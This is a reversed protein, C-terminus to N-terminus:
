QEETNLGAKKYFKLKTENYEKTRENFTENAAYVLKYSENLKTVQEELEELKTQKDKFMEYLKKDNNIATMYVNYLHDHASYRKLMTSYMAQALNKEGEDKLQAIIENSKKFETESQKISETEKELLTKRKDATNLSQNSLEVIEAYDKVGLTILQDYVAKEKKELNVLPKQQDEFVKEKAATNELINYIKEEPSEQKACAPLIIISIIVLLIVNLKYKGSLM